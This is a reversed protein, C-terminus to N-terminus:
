RTVSSVITQKDHRTFTITLDPIPASQEVVPFVDSHLVVVFYDYLNDYYSQAITAHEPLGAASILMKPERLQQVLGLFLAPTIRLLQIRDSQSAVAMGDRTEVASM